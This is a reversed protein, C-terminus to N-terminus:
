PVCWGKRRSVESVRRNEEVGGAVAITVLLSGRLERKWPLALSVEGDRVGGAVATAAAHGHGDLLLVHVCDVREACGGAPVLVTAEMTRSEASDEKV